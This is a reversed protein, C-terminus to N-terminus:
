SFLGAAKKMDQEVGEGDMYCRALNYQASAFGQKVSKTLWKVAKQLDKEVGYGNLYCIGIDNQSCSDGQEALVELEKTTLKANYEKKSDEM